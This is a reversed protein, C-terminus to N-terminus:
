LRYIPNWKESCVLGVAFKDYGIMGVVNGCMRVRGCVLLFWRGITLSWPLERFGREGHAKMLESIDQDVGAWWAILVSM